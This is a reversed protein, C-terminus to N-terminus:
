KSYKLVPDNDRNEPDKGLRVISMKYPVKSSVRFGIEDGASVSKQSYAHLGPLDVSIHPPTSTNDKKESGKSLQDTSVKETTLYVLDAIEQPKLLDHFSRANIIRKFIKRNLKKLPCVKNCEPLTLSSLRMM